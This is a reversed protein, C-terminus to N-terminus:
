EYNVRIGIRMARGVGRRVIPKGFDGNAILPVTVIGTAPDVTLNGNRDVLYVAQDLEAIDADLLNLGDIVLSVPYRGIRVPSISLRADLTQLNPGRCSNRGAFSGEQTRLCDWNSLLDAMGVVENDVFAPDNRSFGDGNADVGYRFGPTFPLGSEYRYFGSLALAGFDVVAGFTFRHPQDFGSRGDSWDTEGLGEPFPVFQMDYGGLGSLWNDETRSFTYGAFMNILDGIRRDM